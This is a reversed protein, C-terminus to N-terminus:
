GVRKSRLFSRLKMDFEEIDPGAEKGQSSFCCRKIKGMISRYARQALGGDRVLAKLESRLPDFGKRGVWDCLACDQMSKIGDIRYLPLSEKSVRIKSYCSLLRDLMDNWFSPDYLMSATVRKGFCRGVRKIRFECRAINKNNSGQEKGKDYFTLEKEETRFSFGTPHSHRRFYPLSLMRNFYAIPSRQLELDVALDLRTVTVKDMPINLDEGIREIAKRVDELPFDHMNTGYYYKCLSCTNIKLLRTNVYVKYGKYEGHVYSFGDEGTCDHRNALYPSVESLLDKDPVNTQYLVFDITDYLAHYHETCLDHGEKRSSLHVYYKSALEDFLFFDERSHEMSKDYAQDKM